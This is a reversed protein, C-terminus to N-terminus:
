QAPRWTLTYAPDADPRYVVVEGAEEAARILTEEEVQAAHLAEGLDNLRRTRVLPGMGEPVAGLGRSIAKRVGDASLLLVAVPGLDIALSVPGQPTTARATVTLPAATQGAAAHALYSRTLHAAQVAWAAVHEELYAAVEKQSRQQACIVGTEAQLDAIRNRVLAIKELTTM